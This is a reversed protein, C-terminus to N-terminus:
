KSKRKERLVKLYPMEQKKQTKPMLYEKSWKMDKNAEFWKFGEEMVMDNVQNDTYPYSITCGKATEFETLLEFQKGIHNETLFGAEEYTDAKNARREEKKSFDVTEEIYLCEKEWDLKRFTINQVEIAISGLGLPKGMGLKYGQKGERSIDCLYILQQLQGKTIHEFYIEGQFITKPNLPRITVNRENEEAQYLKPNVHHWYFKRGNITAQEVHYQRKSDLWFDYNWEVADEPRKLYMQANAIKPGSLEQLTIKKMYLEELVYNDMHLRADSFRLKSSIKAKENAMGFLRCAPCLNEKSRCASFEEGLLDSVKHKFIRKTIAAPSIYSDNETKGYYVPFYPEGRGKLFETYRKRYEVYSKSDKEYADLIDTMSKQLLEDYLIKEFPKKDGKKEFFIASYKKMTEEIGKPDIEGKLLYGKKNNKESYKESFHGSLFRRNNKWKFGSYYLLQGDYCNRVSEKDLYVACAPLLYIKKGERKLLFPELASHPNMRETILEKDNVSSMCSGTVAEYVSRLMGRVESGPIVPEKVDEDAEGNKLESYSYFDYSKHEPKETTFAHECSSNPIFLPTKTQLLYTIKGTFTKEDSIDVITKKDPLSIYFYPNLFKKHNKSM